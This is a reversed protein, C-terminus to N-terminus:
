ETKPPVDRGETPVASLPSDRNTEFLVWKSVDPTLWVTAPTEAFRPRGGTSEREWFKGMKLSQRIQAATDWTPTNNRAHACIEETTKGARVRKATPLWAATGAGLHPAALSVTSLFRSHNVLETIPRSASASWTRLGSFARHATSKFFTGFVIQVGVIYGTWTKILYRCDLNALAASEPHIAVRPSGIWCFPRISM